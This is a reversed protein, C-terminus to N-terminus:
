DTPPPFRPARCQRASRAAPKHQFREARDWFQKGDDTTSAIREVVAVNDRNNLFYLEVM